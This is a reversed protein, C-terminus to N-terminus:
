KLELIKKNNSRNKMWNGHTQLGQQKQQQYGDKIQPLDSMICSIIEFKKHINLSANLIPEIKSLTGHPGSFTYEKTQALYRNPENPKLRNAGTNGNLKQRSLFLTNFDGM